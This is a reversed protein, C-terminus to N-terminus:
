SCPASCSQSSPPTCSTTMQLGGVAADVSLRDRTQTLSVHLGSLQLHLLEQRSIPPELRGPRAASVDLVHYLAHTVPDRTLLLNSGADSPAAHTIVSVALGALRLEVSLM